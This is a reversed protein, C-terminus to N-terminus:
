CASSPLFIRVPSVFFPAAYVAAVKQNPNELSTQEGVLPDLIAHIGPVGRNPLM